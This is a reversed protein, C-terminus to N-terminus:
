PSKRDASLIPFYVWFYLGFAAIWFAASIYMIQFYDILGSASSRVLAAAILCLYAAVILRHVKLPRGTHGLSARTMMALTMVGVGGIAMLHLGAVEGVWDALYGSALVLYSLSLLLYAAHLVWLIPAGLVLHGFWGSLRALNFLGVFLCLLGLVLPPLDLASSIAALCAILIAPRDLYPRSYPLTGQHGARNLANRTFGPVVRGGIIVIMAASTLLGFRAGRDAGGELYGLWELHMLANGTFMAILLALFVVNRMQTKRLLNGGIKLTLLPIFALDILAVVLAPIDASAWLAIRGAIWVAGTTAVFYTRASPAGTWNPVATLFFGAMVAVIYGFIMEHAHWQHPPMEMPLSAFTGGMDHVILWGVWALMALIAFVGASLFYFRFGAQLIIPGGPKDPV